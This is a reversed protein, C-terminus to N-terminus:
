GGVASTFAIGGGLIALACTGLTAVAVPWASKRAHLRIVTIVVGVVAVVVASAVGTMVSTVAGNVSCSEPPCYDLFALVMLGIFGSAVVLIGTLVLVIISITVDTSNRPPPPPAWHPPPM